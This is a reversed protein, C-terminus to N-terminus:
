GLIKLIHKHLKRMDDGDICVIDGYEENFWTRCIKDDYVVVVEVDDNAVDIRSDAIEDPLEDPDIYRGNIRLSHSDYIRILACGFGIDESERLTDACGHVVLEVNRLVVVKEDAM